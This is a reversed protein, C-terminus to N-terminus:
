FSKEYIRAISGQPTSFQVLVVNEIGSKWNLQIQKGEYIPKINSHLPENYQPIHGEWIEKMVPDKSYIM